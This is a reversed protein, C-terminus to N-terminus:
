RRPCYRKSCLTLLGFDPDAANQLFRSLLGIENILNVRMDLCANLFGLSIVIFCGM